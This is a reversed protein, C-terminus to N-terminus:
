KLGKALAALHVKLERVACTTCYHGMCGGDIPDPCSEKRNMDIMDVLASMRQLRDKM